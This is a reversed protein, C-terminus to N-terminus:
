TRPRNKPLSGLLIEGVSSEEHFETGIADCLLTSDGSGIACAGIDMATAVLYMTQLLAGVEKLITALAISRYKWTVRGYRATFVLLVQGPGREGQSSRSEALLAAASEETDRMARLAHARPDYHYIGAELDRCHGVVVYIELPYCAGGSPYPRTSVQYPAFSPKAVGRVRATRFLFEGLQRRSLPDTGYRRTSRRNELATTLRADKTNLARLDPRELAIRRLPPMRKVAPLPPTRGFGYAAGVIGDHRGARSRAHMVLDAFEWQKLIPRADEAARGDTVATLMRSASLLALAAQLADAPLCRARALSRATVPRDLRRLLDFAAPTEVEIRVFSLPSELIWAVAGRRLHAFRSLMFVGSPCELRWSALYAPQMPAARMVPTTRPGVGYAIVCARELEELVYFWEALSHADGSRGAIRELEDARTGRAALARLAAFAGDTFLALRITGTPTDVRAARSESPGLRARSRLFLRLDRLPARNVPTPHVPM